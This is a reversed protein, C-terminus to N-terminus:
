LFFFFSHQSFMNAQHHCTKHTNCYVECKVGATLLLHKGSYHEEYFSSFFIFAVCFMQANEIQKQKGDVEAKGESSAHRWSGSSNEESAAAEGDHFETKHEDFM